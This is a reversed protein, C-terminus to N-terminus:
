NEATSHIWLNLLKIYNILESYNIPKYDLSMRLLCTIDVNWVTCTASHVASNEHFVNGCYVICNVETTCLYNVTFQSFV